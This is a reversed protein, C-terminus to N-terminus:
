NYAKDSLFVKLYVKPMYGLSTICCPHGYKSNSLSFAILVGCVTQSM